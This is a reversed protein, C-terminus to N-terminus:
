YPTTVNAQLTRQAAGFVPIVFTFTYTAAVQVNPTAAGANHTVTMTLLASQLLPARALAITKGATNTLTNNVIAARSVESVAVRLSTRIAMFRSFDIAAVIAIILTAGILAFEVTAVGRRCRGLAPRLGARRPADTSASPSM